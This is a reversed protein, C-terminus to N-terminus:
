ATTALSYRPDAAKKSIYDRWAAKHETSNAEAWLRDFTPDNLAKAMKSNLDGQRRTAEADAAAATQQARRRREAVIPDGIGKATDSVTRAGVVEDQYGALPALSPHLKLGEALAATETDPIGAAKLGDRIARTFMADDLAM